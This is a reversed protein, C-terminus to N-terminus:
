WTPVVQSVNGSGIGAEAQDVQQQQRCLRKYLEELQENLKPIDLKTVRTENQTTNLTYAQVGEQALALIADEIAVIINQTVELRSKLFAICSM